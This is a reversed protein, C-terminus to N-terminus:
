PREATGVHLLALGTLILFIHASHQGNWRSSQWMAFWEGGVALFGAGYQSCFQPGGLHLGVSPAQLGVVVGFKALM